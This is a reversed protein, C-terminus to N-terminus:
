NSNSILNDIQTQLKQLQAVLELRHSISHERHLAQKLLELRQVLADHETLWQRARERPIDFIQPHFAKLKLRCLADYFDSALAYLHSTNLKTIDLEDTQIDAPTLWHTRIISEIVNKDSQNQNTRILASSIRCKGDCISCIIIPYPIARFLMDELIAAHEANRLELDLIHLEDYLRENDKYIPCTFLDPRLMFRDTIRAVDSTLLRKEEPSPKGYQVIVKKAILQDIRCRTPLHFDFM